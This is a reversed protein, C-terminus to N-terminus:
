KLLSIKSLFNIHKILFLSFLSSVITLVKIMQDIYWARDSAFKEMVIFMNSSCDAKFDPECTSLFQMLEEIMSVINQTNILAFCLEM